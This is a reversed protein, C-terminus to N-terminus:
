RHLSSERLKDLQELLDAAHLLYAARRRFESTGNRNAGTTSGAHAAKVAADTQQTLWDRWRPLAAALDSLTVDLPVLLSDSTVRWGRTSDPALVALHDASTPDGLTLTGDDDTVALHESRRALMVHVLHEREEDESAAFQASLSTRAALIRQFEGAIRTRERGIEVAREEDRDGEVQLAQDYRRLTGETVRLAHQALAPVLSNLFAMVSVPTTTGDPMTLCWDGPLGGSSGPCAISVGAADTITNEGLPTSADINTTHLTVPPLLTVIGERDPASTTM